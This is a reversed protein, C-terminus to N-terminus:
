FLEQQVVKAEVKPAALKVKGDKLELLGQRVAEDVAAVWQDTDGEPWALVGRNRLNMIEVGIMWSAISRREGTVYAVVASVREAQSAALNAAVPHQLGDAQVSRVEQGDGRDDDNGQRRPNATSTGRDAEIHPQSQRPVEHRQTVEDQVGKAIIVAHSKGSMGIRRQGNEVLSEADLLERVRGCVCSLRLGTGDAIEERTAGFSGRAKVFSLVVLRKGTLVPQESQYSENRTQEGHTLSM